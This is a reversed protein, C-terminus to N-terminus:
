ETGGEAVIVTLWTEGTNGDEDSAQYHVEYCGATDTDVGSEASVMSADLKLGDKATVESIYESLKLKEGADLYVIGETLQIDISRNEENVIHVPLDVNATDGLSNSVELSVTYSGARRYNVDSDTQTIEEKLDGDLLDVAGIRELVDTYSGEEQTFVLPATLTFRPPHYDTFKVKRTLSASQDSSDFVVYTLSSVGPELFRSFSGVVIDSTLDGDTEDWASMGEMLQEQTYECPIELVERDSGIEPPTADRGRLEVLESVGFMVLALASAVILLMRVIRM